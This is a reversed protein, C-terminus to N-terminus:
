GHQRMVGTEDTLTDILGNGCTLYRTRSPSTKYGRAKPARSWYQNSSHGVRNVKRPELGTICLCNPLVAQCSRYVPGEVAGHWPPILTHLRGAKLCM